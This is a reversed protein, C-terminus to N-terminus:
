FRVTQEGPDPHFVLTVERPGDRVRISNLQGPNLELLVAHRLRAGAVGGPLAAEFYLWLEDTGDRLERGVWHHPARTGDRAKVTFSEALYAQALQDFEAAPTRDLSVPHRARRTLAAEFDEASVRVAIELRGSAHNYGAEAFSAHGPHAHLVAATCLAAIMAPWRQM